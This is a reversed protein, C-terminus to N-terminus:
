RSCEKPLVKVTFGKSCNVPVAESRITSPKSKMPRDLHIIRPSNDANSVVEIDMYCPISDLPNGTEKNKFQFRTELLQDHMNEYFTFKGSYLGFINNAEYDDLYKLKHDTPNPSAMVPPNIFFIFIAAAAYEVDQPVPAHFKHIKDQESELMSKIDECIGLALSYFAPKYRCTALLLEVDDIPFNELFNEIKITWGYEKRFLEMVEYEQEKALMGLLGLALRQDRDNKLDFIDMVERIEDRRQKVCYDLDEFTIFNDLILEILLGDMEEKTVINTM